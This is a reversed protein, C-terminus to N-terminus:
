KKYIGSGFQILGMLHVLLHSLASFINVSHLYIKMNQFTNKHTNTIYNQSSNCTKLINNQIQSKLLFAENMLFNLQRYNTCLDYM